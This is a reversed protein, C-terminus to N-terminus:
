KRFFIYQYIQPVPNRTKVVEKYDFLSLGNRRAIDTYTATSYLISKYIRGSKESGIDIDKDYGLHNQDDQYEQLSRLFEEHNESVALIQMIPDINVVVLVGNSKLINKTNRFASEIDPIEFFNFFNIVVDASDVLESPPECELDYLIFDIGRGNYRKRNAEIFKENFDIGVYEVDLGYDRILKIIWGDGCGMDVLKIPRGNDCAKSVDVLIQGTFDYVDQLHRMKGQLWFDTNKYWNLLNNKKFEVQSSVKYLV